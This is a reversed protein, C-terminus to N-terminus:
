MVAWSHFILQWTLSLSSGSSTLSCFDRGITRRPQIVKETTLSSILVTCYLPLGNISLYLSKATLCSITKVPAYNVIPFVLCISATIFGFLFFLAPSPLYSIKTLSHPAQTQSSYNWTVALNVSHGQCCTASTIDSSIPIHTTTAM